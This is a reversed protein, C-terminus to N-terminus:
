APNSVNTSVNGNVDGIKVAVFNQNSMNTLIQSIAIQEVFPFPNTADMSQASIPFRWSANKPLANTVGLILKRLETLDSATM